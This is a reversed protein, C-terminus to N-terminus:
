VELGFDVGTIADYLLGPQCVSYLNTQSLQEKGRCGSSQSFRDVPRVSSVGCATVFRGWCSGGVWCPRYLGRSFSQSHGCRCKATLTYHNAYLELLEDDSPMYPNRARVM